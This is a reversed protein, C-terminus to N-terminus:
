HLHLVAGFPILGLRRAVGQSAANDWTTGYLPTRGLARIAGAWAAVCAPAYGQGRYAHVTNVGAEDAAPTTRSSFCVSVIIGDQEVGFVPPLNQMEDILWSFHPQLRQANIMTLRRAAAIGEFAIPNPFHYEPGSYSGQNPSHAALVHQYDVLHLPPKRLDDSHQAVPEQRCLRELERVVDDPLDHRFRWLNGETTRGLFFRPAVDGGPENVRLMRGRVDHTFLAGAAMAMLQLSKSTVFILKAADAYFGQSSCLVIAHYVFL